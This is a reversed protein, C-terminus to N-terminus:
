RVRSVVSEHLFPLARLTLPPEALDTLAVQALAPQGDILVKGVRFRPLPRDEIVNPRM